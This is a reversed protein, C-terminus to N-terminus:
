RSPRYVQEETMLQNPKIIREAKLKNEICKLVRVVERGEEAPVPPPKGNRISDYFTRILARHGPRRKLRGSAIAFLNGASGCLRRISEEVSALIRGSTVGIRRERYISWTLDLLNLKIVMLPTFLEVVFQGITTNDGLAMVGMCRESSVTVNWLRMCGNMSGNVEMESITVDSAHKLWKLLIYLVHPAGHEGYIGLPLRHIWHNPDLDGEEELKRREVFYTVRVLYPNNDPISRILAEAKKIPPDFLHNHMVCLPKNNTRAAEIMADAEAEDMCMPKEVLVACGRALVDKTIAAHTPPPTLIHVVDPKGKEIMEEFHKFQEDIKHRQAFTALRETNLDAVGVLEATKYNKIASIHLEGAIGCGILAVRM